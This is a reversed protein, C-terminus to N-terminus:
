KTRQWPHLQLKHGIASRSNNNVTTFWLSDGFLVCWTILPPADHQVQSTHSFLGSFSLVDPSHGWSNVLSATWPQMLMFFWFRRWSDTTLECELFHFCCTKIFLLICVSTLWKQCKYIQQMLFNNQLGSTAAVVCRVDPGHQTSRHILYALWVCSEFYDTFAWLYTYSVIDAPLAQALFGM